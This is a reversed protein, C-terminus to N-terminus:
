AWHDAQAQLGHHVHVATLSALEDADRLRSLLHLLVTSDLGGSFAVLFSRRRLHLPIKRLVAEILSRDDASM